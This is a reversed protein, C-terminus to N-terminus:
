IREERRPVAVIRWDRGVARIDRIVLDPDAPLGAGPLHLLPRGEHGLLRPAMYVILEDVLGAQWLAGALVPGAEVLVENCHRQVALYGLLGALDVRNSLGAAIVSVQAHERFFQSLPPEGVVTTALLVPSSASFLRASPRTRGLSDLVVRLPQRLEADGTQGLATADRVTLLPDDAQLTGMGTLVVCSRARLRQVDARADPSTIWQSQGSALATRGDLSMALKVRVWPRQREFRSFFGINLERAETELVGEHVFIGADRLRQIGQGATRPDPDRVAVVVTAVDAAILADACPPTRGHHACPELTVFVTGGRAQEGAAQLALAEAHPEGARRHWGEGVVAGDRVIVCGVRPNPATSYLGKRALELARAMFLAQDASKM